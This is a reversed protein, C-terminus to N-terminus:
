SCKQCCVQAGGSHKASYLADDASVILDYADRPEYPQEANLYVMGFSSSIEIDRYRLANIHTCLYSLKYRMDEESVNQYLLLFEDGGFRALLDDPATHKLIAEAYYKLVEDGIVHGHKDNIAKFADLDMMVVGLSFPKKKREILSKQLQEMFYARNYVETLADTEAARKLAADTREKTLLAVGVGSVMMYAFLGIFAFVHGPTGTQIHYDSGYILAEVVRYLMLTGAIVFMRGISKQLKSKEAPKLLYIGSIGWLVAVSLSVIVIRQLPVDKYFVWYSNLVALLGAITYYISHRQRKQPYIHARIALFELTAGFIMGTNGAVADFGKPLGGIGEWGLFFFFYGVSVVALSFTHLRIVPNSFTAKSYTFTMYLTLVTGLFNLIVVTKLDM